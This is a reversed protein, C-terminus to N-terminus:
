YNQKEWGTVNGGISGVWNIMWWRRQFFIKANKFTTLIVCVGWGNHWTKSHSQWFHL